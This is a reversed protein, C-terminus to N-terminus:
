GRVKYYQALYSLAVTTSTVAFQSDEYTVQVPAGSEHRGFHLFATLGKLIEVVKAKKEPEAGDMLLELVDRREQKEGTLNFGLCDFAKYCSTLAADFNGSRHNHWAAALHDESRSFAPPLIPWKMRDLTNHKFQLRELIGFWEQERVPLWLPWGNGCNPREWGFFTRWQERPANTPWVIELLLMPFVRFTPSQGARHDEIRQLEDPVTLWVLRIPTNENGKLTTMLDGFSDNFTRQADPRLEAIRRANNGNLDSTQWLEFHMGLIRTIAGLPNKLRFHFM